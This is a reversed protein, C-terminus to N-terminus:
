LLINNTGLKVSFRKRRWNYITVCLSMISDLTLLAVKLIESNLWVSINGKMYKVHKTQINLDSTQAKYVPLCM